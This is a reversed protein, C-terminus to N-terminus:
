QLLNSFRPSVRTGDATILLCEAGAQEVLDLGADAGLVMCATALADAFGCTPAMVTASLVDTQVPYGIRPDLTHGYVNGKSDVKFNRYNGSSAIAAADPGIEVVCFRSHLSSVDTTEVPADIQIRWPKGKPNLGQAVIEGGIEVMFDSCGNRRLMDAVRDVGYGKAVASFDFRTQPSKKEVHGNSILCEGFGVFALVSDVTQKTVDAVSDRGFGWLDTLPAVTPDFAGGSLRYVTESIEWVGLISSSVSDCSNENIASILSNPNFMSLDSDIASMEFRISDSLDEHANYVIHYTTGWTVGDSIFYKQSCSAFTM